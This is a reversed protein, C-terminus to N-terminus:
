KKDKPHVINRQRRTYLMLARCALHLLPDLDSEKDRAKSNTFSEALHHFMSDHMEKESSRKGDEELWNNMAYKRAGLAVIRLFDFMESQIAEEPLNYKEAIERYKTM